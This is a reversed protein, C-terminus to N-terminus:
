SAVWLCRYLDLM